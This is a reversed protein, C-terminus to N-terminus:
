KSKVIRATRVGQETTIRLQYAGEAFKEMPVYEQSAASQRESHLLRGDLSFLEIQISGTYNELTFWVGNETPNPYVAITQAAAPLDFISVNLSRTGNGFWVPRTRSEIFSTANGTGSIKDTGISKRFIDVGGLFFPTEYVIANDLRNHNPWGLDGNNTVISGNKGTETNAGYIDYTNENGDIVDFAIIHPSNKSFTPNGVSVNDPLGNFLKSIISNGTTWGTGTTFNLFGIDWYSLDQGSQNNLINQADYMLFKGSYDFELIDAYGVNNTVQGNTYTPNYLTFEKQDGSTFNVLTVKPEQADAVAALYNGNKSIAVNRWIPENGVVEETPTIQGGSYSLAIGIIKKAKNVFVIYDGKDTISPRSLLGETYLDGLIAGAGTALQLKQGDETTVLVYDTGPNTILSGPPATVTGGGGGGGGTSGPGLIGVADFAAAAANAVTAGYLDTAAKLVAVRCDIFKSNKTLYDRLAKYYVQEAKEKGVATNIAFLYFAHNTIGSNIHVGGNDQTGTYIQNMHKPQWFNGNQTDNNNPDQMSRLCGNPSVGAKVVDEGIKWDDRDIMVGFIDAFSENLAGSQNQYILNATKEIVGHTIEHGGVDLGRALPLFTSGGNGYWMADGNWFANEMSGGNEDAVNVLSIINGGVGDISNRNFATKFYDFCKAANFHASVAAKKNSFTTSSSKVEVYNFNSKQPSTNQADFTAVVGVPNAPFSSAGSNFMSKTADMMYVTSGEQWAGFSRNVDFLDLGTGTTPPPAVFETPQIEPSNETNITESEHTCAHGGAHIRCTRDMANLVAGTHADVLYEMRKLVNPRLTCQWALHAKENQIYVVLEAKFPEGGILRLHEPTWNTRVLSKGFAGEAADRAQEFSITPTISVTPTAEYRGNMFQLSSGKTHLIIESGYVPVGQFVQDMRFHQNGQEDTSATRLRFENEPKKIGSLPLNALFPKLDANTAESALTLQHEPNTTAAFTTIGSEDQLTMWEGNQTRPALGQQTKYSINGVGFPDTGAPVQDINQPIKITKQEKPIQRKPPPSVKASQASLTIAAGLAMVTLIFRMHNTNIKLL